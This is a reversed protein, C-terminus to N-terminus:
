AFPGLWHRRLQEKADQDAEDESYGQGEVEFECSVHKSCPESVTFSGGDDKITGKM